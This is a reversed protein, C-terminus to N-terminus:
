TGAGTPAPPTGAASAVGVPVERAREAGKAAVGVPVMAAAATGAAGGGGAGAGAGAGVTTAAGGGATAGAPASRAAALGPGGPGGTGRGGAGSPAGSAPGPPAGGAAQPGASPGVGAAGGTALRRLGQTYYAAQLGSQGARLPMRSIGQAAVAAEFVPLIKLVVFPSFAALLMLSAGVLLGGLSLGAQTGLDGSTPGGGGVAAAGLGLALSIAFKSVIVALGIRCLGHWAGKAQPWVRAALVLPSFALLLYVLSSRVVLEIWVLFAGLIFVVFMVAGAVGQTTVTAASGFGSFFARLSEPAHALVMASAADTVALLAQTVAALVVVAFVSIPAEAFASRVMLTADGSMLGQIVALLVFGVMLAAAFSLVAGRMDGAQPGTWWGQDLNPSSSSELFHLLETAVKEAAAALAEAIRGMFFEFTAQAAKSAVGGVANTVPELPNPIGALVGSV